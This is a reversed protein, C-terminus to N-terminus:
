EEDIQPKTLLFQTLYDNLRCGSTIVGNSNINCAPTGPQFFTNTDVFNDYQQGTAANFNYGIDAYPWNPTNYYLNGSIANLGLNTQAFTELINFGQLDSASLANPFTNNVSLVNQAYSFINLWCNFDEALSEQNRGASFPQLALGNATSHGEWPNSYRDYPLDPDQPDPNHTDRWLMDLFAKMKINPTGTATTFETAIWPTVIGAVTGYNNEWEIAAAAAGLWYGTVFHHDNYFANGDDQGASGPDSGAMMGRLSYCVGPVTTDGVFFNQIFSSPINGGNQSRITTQINILWDEIVQEIAQVVPQFTAVIEADTSGNMKMLYSGYRVTLGAQYLAKGNGYGDPSSAIAKINGPNAQVQLASPLYTNVLLSQDAASLRSWIDTPFFSTSMYSPLANVEFTIANGTASYGLLPGKIRDLVVFDSLPAGPPNLTKYGPFVILPATQSSTNPVVVTTYTWGYTGTGFVIEANTPIVASHADYEAEVTSATAGTFSYGPYPLASQYTAIDNAYLSALQIGFYALFPNTGGDFPQSTPSIMDYIASFYNKATSLDSRALLPVYISVWPCYPLFTQSSFNTTIKNAAIPCFAVPWLMFMSAPTAAIVQIGVSTSWEPVESPQPSPPPSPPIPTTRVIGVRLFGNYPANAILIKNGNSGNFNATFQIESNNNNSQAYILWTILEGTPVYQLQLRFKYGAPLPFNDNPTPVPFTQGGPNATNFVTIEQLTATGDILLSPTLNTYLVDHFANGAVIYDTITQAPNSPNAYNLLMSQFTSSNGPGGGPGATTTITYTSTEVSSFSLITNTNDETINLAPNAVNPTPPPNAPDNSYWHSAFTVGPGNGNVTSVTGAQSILFSGIRTIPRQSGYGQYNLQLNQYDNTRLLSPDSNYRASPQLSTITNAFGGFESITLTNGFIQAGHVNTQTSVLACLLLLLKRM